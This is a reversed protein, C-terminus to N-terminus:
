FWGKSQLFLFLLILIIIILVWRPDISFQGRKKGNMKKLQELVSIRTDLKAVDSKFNLKDKLINLDKGMNVIKKTNSDLIQIKKNFYGIPWSILFFLFISVMLAWFFVLGAQSDRSQAYFSLFLAFISVLLGVISTYDKKLYIKDM